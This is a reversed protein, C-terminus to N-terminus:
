ITIPLGLNRKLLKHTNTDALVEERFAKRVVHMLVMTDHLLHKRALFGNRCCVRNAALLGFVRVPDKSRREPGMEADEPPQEASQQAPPMNAM